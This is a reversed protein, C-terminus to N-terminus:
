QVWTWIRVGIVALLALVALVRLATDLGTDPISRLSTKPRTSTFGRAELTLAREEVGVISSLILPGITPLYAKIRTFVSSDTEIGRARQADTIIGMRAIMQPIMTLTSLVVYSITPSVGKQELARTLRRVDVIRSALLLASGVGIVRSIVEVGQEFGERTADLVWWRWIVTEGPIALTQLGLIIASIPVIVSVLLKLYSGARGAALAIVVFVLALGVAVRWSFFLSGIAACALVTAVTLPNLRLIPNTPEEIVGPVAVPASGPARPTPTPM